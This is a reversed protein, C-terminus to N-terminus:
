GRTGTAVVLKGDAFCFEYTGPQDTLAYTRCTQPPRTDKQDTSVPPVDFQRDFQSETIGLEVGRGQEFTIGSTPLEGESSDDGAVLKTIGFAGGFAVIAIPVAMWLRWGPWSIGARRAYPKGCNPCDAADTRTAVSCHPCIKLPKGAQESEV